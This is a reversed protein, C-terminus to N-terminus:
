ICFIAWFKAKEALIEQSKLIENRLDLGFFEAVKQLLSLSDNTFDYFGNQLFEDLNKANKLKTFANQFKSFKAYGLAKCLAIKDCNTLNQQLTKFNM